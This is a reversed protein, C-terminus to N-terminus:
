FMTTPERRKWAGSNRTLRWLAFWAQWEALSYIHGARLIRVPRPSNVSDRREIWRKVRFLTVGLTEAIEHIGGLDAYVDPTGPQESM